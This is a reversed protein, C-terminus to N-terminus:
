TLYTGAGSRPMGLEAELGAIKDPDARGPLVAAPRTKRKKLLGSKEACEGCLDRYDSEEQGTEDNLVDVTLRQRGPDRESFAHGGQDCWLAQSMSDRKGKQLAEGAQTLLGAARAFQCGGDQCQAHAHNVYADRYPPAAPPQYGPGAYEHWSTV